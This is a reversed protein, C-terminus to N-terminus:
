RLWGRRAALGSCWILVICIVAILAPFPIASAGVTSMIPTALFTWGFQVVIGILSAVFLGQAWRRRMLLAVSGLLGAGVAVVYAAKVWGPMMAFIEAQAPPLQAIEAPGMSVQMACALCGILSWLLSLVSVIWFWVPPKTGFAQAM